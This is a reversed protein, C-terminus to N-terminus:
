FPIIDETVDLRKSQPIPIAIAWGLREWEENVREYFERDDYRRKEGKDDLVGPLCIVRLCKEETDYKYPLTWPLSIYKCHRWNNCVKRGTSKFQYFSGFQECDLNMPCGPMEQDLM